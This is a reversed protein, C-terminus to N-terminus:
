AIIIKYLTWLGILEVTFHLESGRASEVCIKETEEDKRVIEFVVFFFFFFVHWVPDDEVM